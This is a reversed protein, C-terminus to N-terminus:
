RSAAEGVGSTLLDVETGVRRRLKVTLLLVLMVATAGAEVVPSPGTSTVTVLPPWVEGIECGASWNM